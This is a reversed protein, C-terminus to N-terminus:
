DIVYVGSTRSVFFHKKCGRKIFVTSPVSAPSREGDAYIFGAAANSASWTGTNFKLVIDNPSDNYYFITREPAGAAVVWSSVDLTYANPDSDTPDDILAVCSSYMSTTDYMSIASLNTVAWNNTSQVAGTYREQMTNRQVGYSASSLPTWSVTTALINNTYAFWPRTSGTSQGGLVCIGIAHSPPANGTSLGRPPGVEFIEAWSLQTYNLKGTTATSLTVSTRADAYALFPSM